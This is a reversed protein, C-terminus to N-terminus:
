LFLFCFLFIELQCDTLRWSHLLPMIKSTGVALTLNCSMTGLVLFYSFLILILIFCRRTVWFTKWLWLCAWLSGYKQFCSHFWKKWWRTLRDIILASTAVHSGLGLSSSKVWKPIVADICPGLGYLSFARHLLHQKRWLNNVSSKVLGIARWTWLGTPHGFAAAKYTHTCFDELLFSRIIWVVINWLCSSIEGLYPGKYILPM